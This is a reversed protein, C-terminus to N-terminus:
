AFNPFCISYIIPSELDSLIWNQLKLMKSFLTRCVNISAQLFLLFNLVLNTDWMLVLTWGRLSLPPWNPWLFNAAFTKLLPCSLRQSVVRLSGTGCSIQQKWSRGRRLLEGAFEITLRVQRAQALYSEELLTKPSIPGLFGFFNWLQYSKRIVIVEYM